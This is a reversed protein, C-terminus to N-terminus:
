WPGQQTTRFWIHTRLCRATSQLWPTSNVVGFFVIASMCDQWRTPQRLLRAVALSVYLQFEPRAM